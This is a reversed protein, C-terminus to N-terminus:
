MSGARAALAREALILAVLILAVLILAPRIPAPRIRAAPNPVVLTLVAQTRAVLIRALKVPRVPKM